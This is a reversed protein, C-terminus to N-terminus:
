PLYRYYWKSVPTNLSVTKDWDYYDGDFVYQGSYYDWSMTPIRARVTIMWHQSTSLVGISHPQPPHGVTQAYSFSQNPYGYKTVSVSFPGLVHSDRDTENYWRVSGANLDNYSGGVRGRLYFVRDWFFYGQAKVWEAWVPGGRPDDNPYQYGRLDGSQGGIPGADIVWTGPHNPYLFVPPPNLPDFQPPVSSQAFASTAAFVCFLLVFVLKGFSSQSASLLNAQRFFIPKGFSCILLVWTACGGNELGFLEHAHDLM